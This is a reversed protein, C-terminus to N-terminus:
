VEEFVKSLTQNQEELLLINILHSKISSTDDNSILFVSFYM